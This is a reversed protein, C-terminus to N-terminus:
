MPIKVAIPQKSEEYYAEALDIDIKMLVRVLRNETNLKYLKVNKTATKLIIGDKILKNWMKEITTPSIGLEKAVQMKSYEYNHYMLFFDLVKILPYEGFTDVFISNKANQSKLIKIVRIRGTVRGFIFM